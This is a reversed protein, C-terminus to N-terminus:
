MSHQTTVASGETRAKKTELPAFQCTVGNRLSEQWLGDLDRVRSDWGREEFVGGSVVCAM